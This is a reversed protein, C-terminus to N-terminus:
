LLDRDERGFFRYSRDPDTKVDQNESFFRKILAKLEGSAFTNSNFDIGRLASYVDLLDERSMNVSVTGDKENKILIDGKEKM